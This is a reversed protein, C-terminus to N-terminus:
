SISVQIAFQTQQTKGKQVFFELIQVIEDAKNCRVAPRWNKIHCFISLYLGIKARRSYVNKLLYEYSQSIIAERFMVAANPLSQINISAAAIRVAHPEDRLEAEAYLALGPPL